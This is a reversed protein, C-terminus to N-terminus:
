LQKGIGAMIQTCNEWANDSQNNRGDIKWYSLNASWTNKNKPNFFYKLNVNMMRRQKDMSKADGNGGTNFEAFIRDVRVFGGIMGGSYPIKDLAIRGTVNMGFDIKSSIDYKFKLGGAFAINAYFGSNKKKDAGVGAGVGCQLDVIDRVQFKHKPLRGVIYNVFSTRAQGWFAGYTGERVPGSANAYGIAMNYYGFDYPKNWNSKEKAPEKKETQAFACTCCLIAAAILLTTKNM